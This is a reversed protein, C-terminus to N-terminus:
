CIQSSIESGNHPQTNVFLYDFIYKCLKARFKKEMEWNLLIKREYGLIKLVSTDETGLQYWHKLLLVM